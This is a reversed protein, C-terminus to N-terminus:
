TATEDNIIKQSKDILTKSQEILVRSQSILSFTFDIRQLETRMVMLSLPEIKHLERGEQAGKPKESYVARQPWPTCLRNRVWSSRRGDVNMTRASLMFDAM